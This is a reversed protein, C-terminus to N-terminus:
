KQLLTARCDPNADALSVTNAAHQSCDTTCSHPTTVYCPLPTHTHLTM